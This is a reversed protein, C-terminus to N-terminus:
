SFMRSLQATVVSCKLCPNLTKLIFVHIVHPAWSFFSILLFARKFPREPRCTIDLVLPGPRATVNTPHRPVAREPNRFCWVDQRGRCGESASGLASGSEADVM